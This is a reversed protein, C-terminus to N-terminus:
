ETLACRIGIYAGYYVPDVMFRTDIRIGGGTGGFIHWSGGRVIRKGSADPTERGDAANYPYFSYLSNTWEWVNGSMGYVGYPSQGKDYQNVAATDGVCGSHNAHDCDLASGWPYAREDATGRAAKEWEAETPLRAGRWECYTKAAKWDVYLVPYNAFNPNNYYSPRTSSGLLRPIRCKGDVVCAAYMENTVEYKDIYFTDVYILSAPRAEIQGDDYGMTFEGAPILRMSINKADTIEDVIPTEILAPTNTSTPSFSTPVIEVPPVDTDAASTLVQKTPSGSAALSWLRSGVFWCLGCSLFLALISMAVLLVSFKKKKLVPAPPTQEVAPQEVTGIMQERLKKIKITTATLERGDLLNQLEDAFAHMDPYRDEPKRALVKLLVSEMNQPLDPVYQKPLPLPENIQKLLVGAPTDSIYPRHGTIMEYLVVGLSYLDSLATAEGTWQEPAMYDPTGLGAGSATLNTAGQTEFIKVLGFDTLMPQGKETMLINSPKVDRNVIKHEHIYELARAVPVLLRVANRWPIPHGLREKLTGGPLYVMVLYPSGEYEGYDIVGVINPHSLGGLSKAERDFRKLIMDFQDPPFSERRIVKVAVERDLHTDHAKYVTAMGGKGILELIQYRGLNQGILESMTNGKKFM